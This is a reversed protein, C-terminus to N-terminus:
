KVEKRYDYFGKGGPLFAKVIKQIHILSLLRVAGQRRNGRPKKFNTTSRPIILNGKAEQRYIWMQSVKLGAKNLASVLDKITYEYQMTQSHKNYLLKLLSSLLLCPMFDKSATM